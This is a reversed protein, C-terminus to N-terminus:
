FRSMPSAPVLQTPTSSITKKMVVKARNINFTITFIFPRNDIENELLFKLKKVHKVTSKVGNLNIYQYDQGTSTSPDYSNMKFYINLPINIDNQLGPSISHVKDANTEQIQNLGQLQPHITTLLKTSSSSSPTPDVWKSIDNVLSTNNGVFTLISSDSYGVNFESSSLISTISNNNVTVFNNGINDALKTVSTQNVNDYNIMWLFQNDLQTKSIGTTNDVILENQQDVWFVQAISSNYVDSNSSSNYLRSSLLGLPSSTADNHIKLLFDKIVYINNAYVRGTPVGTSSYSDLYDECEINFTLDTGNQVVYQDSNKYVSVVLIGKAYAILEELTTIRNVLSSIYDFLGMAVGNDSSFGSLITDTGLFYTKNNVTVQEALLADLGKASLDNQVSTRVDEKDANKLIATNNNLVNNLNDPFSVTITNSWDSEAPSDPWGVESISIVRLQVQEGYQIPIDIQNINPTDPDTIDEVQWSYKGTSADFVRKRSDTKIETWNSFVANSPQLPTVSVSSSNAVNSILKTTNTTDKLVFTQVPSEKGDKSLYKYQVRFQVIEQPQTGKSIVPDPITWFGRVHFIPAVTTVPSNSLGIINNNLSTLLNSKTSVQQNLLNLENTAQSRAADSTFRTVKIQKNKDQISSTLQQIESKISVQQNNYNKLLDSDPTDTLHTNVQVVQFNAPDLNVVNPTAALTNPTNKSVLDKLVAGYDIVSDVYYQDLTTGDAVNKLESTYYGTGGSWNKSLIYNDMDLAKVFIANRENYGVSVLVKKNYLVPSYIKLTSIGVPIPEIGEVREVRIRPEFTVTSIEIISYRTSSSPTNIILEDNISLQKSVQTTINSSSIINQIYTLTDLHYWFKKNLTDEEISTVTFTGDYQLQSPELDFMQEDYNPDLPNILGPTNQHWTEFEKLTFNTSGKFLSNFSNLASQGLTTFSGDIDQAFQPIYRRCLIKRVDDEIQGSLDLEVFLEPNLLNDLIYNKNTTFTTLVNLNNIDNPERNLDVTVVKKFKTGNSPQIMSGVSNISYISNINNNLRDIESKLFGFSPLTYQTAVGSQDTVNITVSSDTNSVLQNIKSLMEVVNNNFNIVQEAVTNYSSQIAM